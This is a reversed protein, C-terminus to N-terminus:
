DRFTQAQEDAHYSSRVLPSSAINAFGMERAIRGYILFQEPSIYEVIPFHSPSPQLYQGITISSVGVSRLDKLTQLIQDKTEGLGLIIGSKTVFGHKFADELVSLSTEYNKSPTIFPFLERVTEINHNFIDPKAQYICDLSERKAKFDPVLVEIKCNPLRLRIERITQAFHESGGDLLDDRNVSTLVVYALNLEKASEAVEIPENSDLANPKGFAVDCYKCRRTCIDGAIMYTATRRSWCHNLNPCSASECVTHISSKSVTARVEEVPDNETPFRLRVKMWEPKPPIPSIGQTRPKKKLPNM